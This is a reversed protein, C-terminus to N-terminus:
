YFRRTRTHVYDTGGSQPIVVEDGAVPDVGGPQRLLTLM